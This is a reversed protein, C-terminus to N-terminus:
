KKENNANNNINDYDRTVVDADAAIILSM